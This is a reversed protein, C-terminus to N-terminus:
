LSKPIIKDSHSLVAFVFVSPRVPHSEIVSSRNVKLYVDFARLSLIYLGYRSSSCLNIDSASGPEHM